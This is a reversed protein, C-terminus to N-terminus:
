MMVLDIVAGFAPDLLDVIGEYYWERFMVSGETFGVYFSLHVSSVHDVLTTQM